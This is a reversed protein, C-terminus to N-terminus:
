LINVYSASLYWKDWWQSKDAEKKINVIDYLYMEKYNPCRVVIVCTYRQISLAWLNKQLSKTM